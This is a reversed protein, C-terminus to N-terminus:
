NLRTRVRYYNMDGTISNTYVRTSDDGAINTEGSVPVWAGGDMNTTTLLDYERSMGDYLPDLTGETLYCVVINGNSIVIDIALTSESNTPVTGAIWEHLNNLGDGDLDDNWMNTSSASGFYRREWEDDMRYVDSGMWEVPVTLNVKAPGGEHPEIEEVKPVLFLAGRLGSVPRGAGASVLYRM